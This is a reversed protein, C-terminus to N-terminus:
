CLYRINQGWNSVFIAGIGHVLKFLRLGAVKNFFFNQCMHKGTFKEFNKLVGEKYLM